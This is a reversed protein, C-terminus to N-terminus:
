VYRAETAGFEPNVPVMIAGLRALALLMLVHGPHNRAMVAVRDGHKIGRSALARACGLTLEHFEEWTTTRGEFVIFPRQPSHQLRSAFVGALSYDHPPYLGIVELPSKMTIRTFSTRHFSCASAFRDVRNYRRAGVRMY